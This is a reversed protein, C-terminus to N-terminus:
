YGHKRGKRSTRGNVLYLALTSIIMLIVSYVLAIARADGSSQPNTNESIIIGLPKYLPSFLFISLDYDPLLAIFNLVFVGAVSPLIIPLLVRVFTYIPTAGMNKGAEELDSPLNFFVAKTMRLTFPIKIIIYGALLLFVTGGLKLHFLMPQPTNFTVILGMAVLTSPIVWPILLSFELVTTLRNNYKHILRSALLCLVIVILSATFAYAISVLYPKLSAMSKFVLRYNQLTLSSLSFKASSIAQSNTFSFLITMAVPITYIIFLLYSVAHVAINVAPNHITQKELKSEVKSVSMYNGQREIRIMFMLLLATSLGLALALFTALDRSTTSKSFALIMPTITEFQKGGLILPASTANLGTLFTLITLAFLTPKLTPLVVRRLIYWQSAGMNRAAEITQYDLNRIANSLFMIHNSTCAFTMVLVVAPYGVFWSRNFEPMIGAMIGTLFGFEGYVMKYSSALVVGGYILTTSYALKLMRSGAIRFYDTVLVIFIGVLNVTFTLTCALVFSNKLSRMARESKMLKRIADVNFHGDTFFTVKITNFNPYILFLAVFWTFFLLCVIQALTIQSAWSKIQSSFKKM